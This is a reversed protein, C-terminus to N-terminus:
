TGDLREVFKGIMPKLTDSFDIKMAAEHAKPSMKKWTKLLIDLVKEEEHKNSFEELYNELFVLCIVDELTQTDPDNKLNKKQLLYKVRNILEQDIDYKKLIGEAIGAHYNKLENRWRIYGVKDMPYTDRPIEWRGIHQCRAAIHVAVPADPRFQNLKKTMRIGYLMEKPYPQGNDTERAPDNANYDDFDQFIEKLQIIQM